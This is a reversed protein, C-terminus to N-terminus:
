SRARGLWRELGLPQRDALLIYLGMVLWVADRAMTWGSIPDEDAAGQSAFCGCAMDLELHLAWGLAIMFSVMLGSVVLASARVRLGVILFAGVVIEIWPVIIAFVNVAWIPLFQYTAVDLAFAGPHAIKHLSAAVFVWGLYLRVGLAVVSNIQQLRTRNM